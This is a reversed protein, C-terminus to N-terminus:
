GENSTGNKPVAIDLFSPWHIIVKKRREKEEEEKREKRKQERIYRRERREMRRVDKNHQRLVRRSVDLGQEYGSRILLVVGVGLGVIGWLGLDNVNLKPKSDTVKDNM